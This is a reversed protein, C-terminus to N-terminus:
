REPLKHDSVFAITLVDSLPGYGVKYPYNHISVDQLEIEEMETPIDGNEYEEWTVSRQAMDIKCIEKSVTFHQIKM